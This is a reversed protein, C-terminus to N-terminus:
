GEKFKYINYLKKELYRRVKFSFGSEPKIPNLIITKVGSINGGLSDTFLQDGIIAVNNKHLGLQKVARFFKFPLPKLGLSIFELEIKQAFPAVRKNKSNSLIILKIGNQRMGFLWEPLGDVLIEGHHTSLTNDVDLILGKIDNKVLFDYTIDTIRNFKFDPKFLM